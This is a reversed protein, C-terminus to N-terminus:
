GPATAAVLYRNREAILHALYRRLVVRETLRGIIGFPAQFAVRDTMLCGDASAEFLHEHRFAHFPGRVQEDVFRHPPDYETVRSTMTWPVGFHWARWTIEDGLTLIGSTVGAVARERSREMSRLHAEVSLSLEFAQPPSAPLTTVRTFEATM